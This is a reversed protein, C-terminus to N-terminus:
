RLMKYTVVTHIRTSEKVGSQKQPYYTDHILLSQRVTDKVFVQRYQQLTIADM